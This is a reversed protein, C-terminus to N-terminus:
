LYELQLERMISSIEALKVSRNILIEETLDNYYFSKDPGAERLLARVRGCLTLTRDRKNLLVPDLIFHHLYTEYAAYWIVIDLDPDRLTSEYIRLKKQGKKKAGPTGAGGGTFKL